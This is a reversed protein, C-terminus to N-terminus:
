TDEEYEFYKYEIKCDIKIPNLTDFAKLLFDYAESGINVDEECIVIGKGIRENFVEDGEHVDSFAPAICLRRAGDFNVVLIKIFNNM